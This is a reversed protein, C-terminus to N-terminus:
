PFFVVRFGFGDDRDDINRWGRYASRCLVSDDVWSGGRLLKDGGGTTWASGNVPAGKYNEHWGDECWEWVNGSMDHIGLENGKKEGVAHTKNSNDEHWAVENLNNSGAYIYGKSKNGGRASYEWEAESPQRVKQGTQQSLEKCFGQADKWSVQEVPHNPRDKFHSPNSGMVAMYQSQTIPYKGIRFSPVNVYHQPRESDGGEGTPSGMLFTGGEVAILELVQNNPLQIIKSNSSTSIVQAQNPASSKVTPIVVQVPNLVALMASASAYRRSVPVLSKDLIEGLEKSVKNGNLFDRWVWEGDLNTLDFPSCLTMLNLCTVGLSYIDSSFGAKGKAQEPATYEPSGITTGMKALITM